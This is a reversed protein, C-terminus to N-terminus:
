GEIKNLAMVFMSSPSSETFGYLVGNDYQLAINEVVTSGETQGQPIKASAEPAKQSVLTAQCDNVDITIRLQMSNKPDFPYMPPAAYMGDAYGNSLQTGEGTLTEASADYSLWGYAYTARGDQRNSIATFSVKGSPYNSLFNAYDRLFAACRAANAMADVLEDSPKQAPIQSVPSGMVPSNQGSSTQGGLDIKRINESLKMGNELQIGASAHVANSALCFVLLLALALSISRMVWAGNDAGDVNGM